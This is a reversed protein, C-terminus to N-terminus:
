DEADDFHGDEIMKEIMNSVEIRGKHGRFTAQILIAADEKQWENRLSFGRFRSQIRTAADHELEHMEDESDIDSSPEMEDTNSVIEQRPSSSPPIPLEGTPSPDGLHREDEHTKEQIFALAYDTLLDSIIKGDASDFELTGDLDLSPRVEFYFMISPKFGWRLVEEIRFSTLLNRNKDFLKIGQLFFSYLLHFAHSDIRGHCVPVPLRRSSVDFQIGLIINEPLSHAGKQNCRFFSCGYIPMKYVDEM